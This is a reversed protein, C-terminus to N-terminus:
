NTTERNKYAAHSLCNNPGQCCFFAANNDRGSRLSGKIDRNQNPWPTLQPPCEINHTRHKINRHTQGPATRLWLCSDITTESQSGYKPLRKGGTHHPYNQTKHREAGSLTTETRDRGQNKTLWHETGNIFHHVRVVSWKPGWRRGGVATVIIWQIVIGTPWFNVYM